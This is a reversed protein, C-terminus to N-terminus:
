ITVADPVISVPRPGADFLEDRTCGVTHAGIHWLDDGMTVALKLMAQLHGGADLLATWDRRHVMDKEIESLGFRTEYADPDALFTERNEPWRLSLAFRNLASGQLARDATFVFTGPADLNSPIAPLNM